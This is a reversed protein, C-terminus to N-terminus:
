GAGPYGGGAILRPLGGGRGVRRGRAEVECAGAREEALDDPCARANGGVDHEPVDVAPVLVVWVVGGLAGDPECNALDTGAEGCLNGLEYGDAAQQRNEEEHASLCDREAEDAPGGIAVDPNSGSM